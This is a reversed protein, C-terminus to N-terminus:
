MFEELLAYTHGHYTSINFHYIQLDWPFSENLMALEHPYSLFFFLATLAAIDSHLPSLKGANRYYFYQFYHEHCKLLM